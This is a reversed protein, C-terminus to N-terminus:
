AIVADVASEFQSIPSRERNVAEIYEAFKPWSVFGHERAIVFQADALAFRANLFDSDPLKRLQPHNQRIRRLAEPDGSKRSKALNKAQKKYQELSPRAPLQKADM